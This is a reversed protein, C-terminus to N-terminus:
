PPIVEMRVKRSVNVTSAIGPYSAVTQFTYAVTVEVYLNDNTDDGTTSTVTPQPSLNSANALAATKIGTTDKAHTADIMGYLAGNRACDTITMYDYFLRSYDIGALFIFALFPLLVAL